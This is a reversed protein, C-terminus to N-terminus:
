RHCAWPGLHLAGVGPLAVVDRLGEIDVVDAPGDFSLFLAGEPLLEDDGPERDDKEEHDEEEEHPLQLATAALRHGEALGLGLQEGIVLVLDGEFVNGSDLFSLVLDLLDDREQLIGFFNVRSPPRMGLPTDQHHARGPVPLVSRARAM